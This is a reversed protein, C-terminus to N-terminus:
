TQALRVALKYAEILSSPDARNQWAIDFATGHDVSTRIIPLGLTVNVSKEFALAKLPIHGQDHYMCIFCDTERRRKALFCTDPPLPGEIDIGRNRAAQVAPAILSEEERYGFLGDEGAHPNLGCVVLKPDRGRISKLATASLEIVDLIRQVTLHAPVDVYGVHTTVFACTLPDSYQMMCTRTSGTQEAFIETHGPFTYGAAVLARKNIPGTVVADVWKCQAWQIATSIYSYAAAGSIRSVEGPKIAALGATEFDVVAPETLESLDPQRLDRLKLHRWKVSSSFLKAVRELIAWDGLVIPISGTFVNERDRSNFAQLLKLCIEPGIGASDGMTVAIKKETASL